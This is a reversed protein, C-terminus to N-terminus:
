VVVFCFPTMHADRRLHVWLFDQMLCDCCDQLIACLLGFACELFM